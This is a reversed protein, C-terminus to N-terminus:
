IGAQEYQRREYATLERASIIRISQQRELHSVILLRRRDSMGVIIFRDEENSHDPDSFTASLTDEFVTTAEEFSVRHKQLNRAAKQRDWEFELAM